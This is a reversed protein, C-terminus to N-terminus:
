SLTSIQRAGASDGQRVVSRRPASSIFGFWVQCTWTLAELTVSDDLSPSVKLIMLQEGANGRFCMGLVVDLFSKFVELSPSKVLKRPLKNWHRVLKNWHRVVGKRHTKGRTDSKFRGQHWLAVSSNPTLHRDGTRADCVHFDTFRLSLGHLFNWM